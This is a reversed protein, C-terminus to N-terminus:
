TNMPNTQEADHFFPSVISKFNKKRQNKKGHNKNM